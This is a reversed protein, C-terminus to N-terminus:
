RPSPRNSPLIWRALRRTLENQQSVQSFAKPASGHVVLDMVGVVLGAALTTDNVIRVFQLRGSTPTLSSIFLAEVAYAAVLFACLSRNFELLFCRVWPCAPLSVGWGRTEIRLSKVEEVSDVCRLARAPRHLQDTLLILLADITVQFSVGLRTAGHDAPNPLVEPM